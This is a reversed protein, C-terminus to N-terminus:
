VYKIIEEKQFSNEETHSRQGCLRTLWFRWIKWTKVIYAVLICPGRLFSTPKLSAFSRQRFDQLLIWLEQGCKVSFNGLDYNRLIETLIEKGFCYVNKLGVRILLKSYWSILLNSITNRTVSCATFKIGHTEAARVTMAVLHSAVGDSIFVSNVAVKHRGFHHLWQV